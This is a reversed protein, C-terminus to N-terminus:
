LPLLRVLVSVILAVLFGVGFAIGAAMAEQMPHLARGRVSIIRGDAQRLILKDGPRVVEIEAGRLEAATPADDTAVHLLEKMPDEQDFLNAQPGFAIYVM